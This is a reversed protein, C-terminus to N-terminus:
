HTLPLRATYNGQLYACALYMGEVGLRHEERCTAIAPGPSNGTVGKGASTITHRNGVPATDGQLIHLHVLEMWRTDAFPPHGEADFRTYYNVWLPRRQGAEIGSALNGADRDM